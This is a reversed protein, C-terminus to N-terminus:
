LYGFLYKRIKNKFSNRKFCVKLYPHRSLIIQNLRKNRYVEIGLCNNKFLRYISFEPHGEYIIKLNLNRYLAEAKLFSVAKHLLCIHVNMILYLSARTLVPIYCSSHSCLILCLKELSDQSLTFLKIFKWTRMCPQTFRGIKACM